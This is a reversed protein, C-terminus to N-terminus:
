DRFRKLYRVNREIQQCVNVLWGRVLIKKQVGPISHKRSSFFHSSGGVGTMRFMKVKGESVNGM